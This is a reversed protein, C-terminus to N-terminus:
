KRFKIGKPVNPYYNTDQTAPTGLKVGPDSFDKGMKILANFLPKVADPSFGSLATMATHFAEKAEQGGYHEILANASGVEKEFDGGKMSDLFEQYGKECQNNIDTVIKDATYQAVKAGMAVMKDANESNLGLEKAMPLFENMLEETAVFGEPMTPKYDALADENQAQDAEAKDADDAIQDTAAGSVDTEANSVNDPNNDGGSTDPVGGTNGAEGGTDAYASSGGDGEAFLQLDFAGVSNRQPATLENIM